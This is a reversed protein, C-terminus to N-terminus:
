SEVYKRGIGGLLLSSFPIGAGFSPPIRWISAGVFIYNLRMLASAWLLPGPLITSITQAFAAFPPFPQDTKAGGTILLDLPSQPPLCVEGMGGCYKYGGVTRPPSPLLFTRQGGTPFKSPGHRWVAFFSLLGGEDIEFSMVVAATMPGRLFLSKVIQKLFIPLHPLSPSLLSFFSSLSVM